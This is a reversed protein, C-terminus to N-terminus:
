ASDGSGMIKTLRQRARYLRSMVTGPRIRLIKAIEEYSHEGYAKLVIVEKLKTPLEEIAREVLTLRERNEDCNEPTQIAPAHDTEAFERFTRVARYRRRLRDRCENVAITTCWVAFDRSPDYDKLHYYVKIFTDQAAEEAEIRDGLMRLCIRLMRQRHRQMLQEFAKDDGAAAMGVLGADGIETWIAGKDASM